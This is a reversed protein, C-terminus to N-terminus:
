RRRSRRRRGAKSKSLPLPLVLDRGRSKGRPREFVACLGVDYFTVDLHHEEAFRKIEKMRKEPSITKPWVRELESNYVACVEQEKLETEIRNALKRM